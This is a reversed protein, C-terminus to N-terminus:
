WSAQAALQQLDVWRGMGFFAFVVECYVSPESAAKKERKRRKREKVVDIRREFQLIQLQMAANARDIVVAVGREM